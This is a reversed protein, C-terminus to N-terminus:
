ELDDSGVRISGDGHSGVLTEYCGHAQRAGKALYVTIETSFRLNECEWM